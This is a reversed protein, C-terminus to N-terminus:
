QGGFVDDLEQDQQAQLAQSLSNISKFIHDDIEQERLNAKIEQTRVLNKKGESLADEDDLGKGLLNKGSEGVM